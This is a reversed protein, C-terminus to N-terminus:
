SLSYVEYELYDPKGKEVDVVLVSPLWTIQDDDRILGSDKIGDTTGKCMADFNCADRTRKIRFHFVRRITMKDFPVFDLSYIQSKFEHKFCLFSLHREKKILKAKAQYHIKQNPNLGSSPMKLRVKKIIDDEIFNINIM